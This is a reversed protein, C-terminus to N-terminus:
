NADPYQAVCAKGTQSEQESTEYGNKDESFGMTEVITNTEDYVIVAYEKPNDALLGVLNEIIGQRSDRVFLHFMQCLNYISLNRSLYAEVHGGRPLAAEFDHFIMSAECFPLSFERCTDKVIKGIGMDCGVSLFVPLPGAKPIETEILERIVEADTETEQRKRDGIIAMYFM